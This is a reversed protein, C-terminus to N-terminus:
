SGVACVRVPPVTRQSNSSVWRHDPMSGVQCLASIGRQCKASVRLENPAISAEDLRLLFTDHDTKIAQLQVSLRPIEGKVSKTRINYKCTNNSILVTYM